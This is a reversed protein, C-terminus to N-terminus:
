KENHLDMRLFEEFSFGQKKAWSVEYAREKEKYVQYELGARENKRIALIAKTQRPLNKMNRVQEGM